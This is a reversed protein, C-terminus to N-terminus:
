KRTQPKGCGGTGAADGAPRRAGKHCKQWSKSEAWHDIAEKNTM